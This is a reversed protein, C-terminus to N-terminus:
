SHWNEWSLPLYYPELHRHDFVNNGRVRTLLIVQKEPIVDIQYDGLVEMPLAPYIQSFLPNEVCFLSVEEQICLMMAEMSMVSVAIRRQKESM